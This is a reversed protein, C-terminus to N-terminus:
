AHPEGPRLAHSGELNPPFQFRVAEAVDALESSVLQLLDDLAVIGVLRDADDVVPIRRLHHRRMFILAVGLASNETITVPPQHMVEAIMMTDANWRGRVVGLALDRDTVIGIPKHDEDVVVISGTGAADMRKAVDRLSEEGTATVPDRRCYDGAPM